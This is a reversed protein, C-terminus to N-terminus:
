AVLPERTDSSRLVFCDVVRFIYKPKVRKNDMDMVLVDGMKLEFEGGRRIYIGHSAMKGTLPKYRILYVQNTVCILQKMKIVPAFSQVVLQDPGNTNPNVFCGITAWRRILIVGDDGARARGTASPKDYSEIRQLAMTCRTHYDQADILAQRLISIVDTDVFQISEHPYFDLFM